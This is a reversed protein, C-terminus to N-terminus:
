GIKICRMSMSGHQIGEYIFKVKDEEQQLAAIYLLPLYHEETPVSLEAIKGLKKYEILKKHEGEAIAKAIFKDFEIAWDFPEADMEYKMRGLNHVINGSAVILIGMERLKILKKGLNYHYSENQNKNLSLQFVPIDAKPYMHKLVAWAGHDIGWKSDMLINEEMLEILVKEVYEKAGSPRYVLEYLEKPFGYFDYIQKPEDEGTIYAGETEWHASIVMIAKPKPIEEGLKKLAETYPNELIANMPNGHGIFIVPLKNCM